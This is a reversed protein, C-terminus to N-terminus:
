VGLIDCYLRDYAQAAREITFAHVQHWANVTLREAESPNELIWLMAAALPEPQAAPVLLGTEGNRVLERSGSVNTAVVPVRAAMAELIVTPFGEWLSSSVLLDIKGLIEPVDDRQNLFQTAHAIGLKAAYAELDPKLSGCGVIWMQLDTIRRLLKVGAQMFYRHGKQQELRGIIAIRPPRAPRRARGPRAPLPPALLASSIGNYILVAQRGNPRAAIRRDMAVQVARSIAVESDFLWPFAALNLMRGLWPRTQWQQDTHMTRVIQPHLPSRLKSWLGLLDGREFHSNIVLPRVRELLQHLLAAARLM